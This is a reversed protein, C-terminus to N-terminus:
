DYWERPRESITYHTFRGDTGFYLTMELWSDYLLGNKLIRVFYAIDVPEGPPNAREHIAWGLQNQQLWHEIEVRQSGILLEHAIRSQLAKASFPDNIRSVWYWVIVVALVAATIAVAVTRLRNLVTASPLKM